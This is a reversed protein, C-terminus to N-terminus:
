CEIQVKMRDPYKRNCSKISTVTLLFTEFASIAYFLTPHSLLNDFFHLMSTTKYIISFINKMHPTHNFTHFDRHIILYGKNSSEIPLSLNNQKKKPKM